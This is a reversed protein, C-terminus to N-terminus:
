EAHEYHMFLTLLLCLIYDDIAYIHILYNMAPPCDRPRKILPCRQLWWILHTPRRLVGSGSVGRTVAMVLSSRAEHSVLAVQM